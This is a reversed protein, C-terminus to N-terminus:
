WQCFCRIFEAETENVGHEAATCIHITYEWNHLKDPLIKLGPLSVEQEGVYIGVGMNQACLNMILGIDAATIGVDPVFGAKRCRELFSLHGKKNEGFAIFTDNKLQRMDIASQSSLPHQESLMFYVNMVHTHHVCLRKEDIPAVCFGIDIEGTLLASDVDMDSFERIALKVDPHGQTYDRLLNDPLFNAMGQTFGIRITDTDKNKETNIQMLATSYIKVLDKAYPLLITGYDTLSITSATRFFLPVGLEAELSKISKSIGQQSIYLNNAAKTFSLQESVEIFNELQRFDM